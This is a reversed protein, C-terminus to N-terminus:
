YCEFEQLCCADNFNYSRRDLDICLKEAKKLLKMREEKFDDTFKKALRVNTEWNDYLDQITEYKFKIRPPTKPPKNLYNLNAFEHLNFDISKEVGAVEQTM